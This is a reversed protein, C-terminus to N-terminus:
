GEALQVFDREGAVIVERLFRSPNNGNFFLVLRDIARTMAVYFVRREEEPDVDSEFEFQPLVGETVDAIIVADFELGKSAHITLVSVSQTECSDAGNQFLKLVDKNDADPVSEAESARELMRMASVLRGLHIPDCDECLEAFLGSRDFCLGIAEAFRRKRLLQSLRLLFQFYEAEDSNLDPLQWLLEWLSIRFKRSQAARNKWVETEGAEALSSLLSDSDHLDCAARIWRRVTQMQRTELFPVGGSSASPVGLKDCAERILNITDHHRALVAIRRKGNYLDLLLRAVRQTQEDESSCPVLAIKAGEARKPEIEKARRQRNFGILRNAAGAITSTSRYNTKLEVVLSNRYVDPFQLINTIDASRFGYISQDGDGCALLSRGSWDFNDPCASSGADRFNIARNEVISRVLAWQPPNTDQFEDVLIHRYQNHLRSRWDHLANIETVARNLLDDFDLLSNAAYWKDLEEWLNLILDSESSWNRFNMEIEDFDRIRDLGSSKARCILQHYNEITKPDANEAGTLEKFISGLKGRILEPEVVPLRKVGWLGKLLHYTFSHFHTVKPMVLRNQHMSNTRVSMEAAAAKTFTIALISEPQHRSALHVLRCTITRTKGSGPVSDALIPGNEAFVATKQADTLPPLNIEVGNNEISPM